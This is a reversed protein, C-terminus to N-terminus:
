AYIDATHYAHKFFVGNEHRGVYVRNIDINDVSGDFMKKCKEVAEKPTSALILKVVSSESGKNFVYLRYFNTKKGVRYGPNAVVVQM